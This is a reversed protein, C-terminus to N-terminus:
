NQQAAMQQRKFKRSQIQWAAGFAEARTGFPGAVREQEAWTEWKGDDRLVVRHGNAHFIRSGNTTM